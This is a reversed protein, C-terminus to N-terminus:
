KSRKDARRAGKKRRNIEEKLFNMYRAINVAEIGEAKQYAESYLELEKEYWELSFKSAKKM